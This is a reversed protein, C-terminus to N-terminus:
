CIGEGGWPDNSALLLATASDTSLDFSAEFTAQDPRTPSVISAGTVDTLTVQSADVCFYASIVGKGDAAGPEYSQLVSKEITSQGGIMLERDAFSQFGEREIAAIQPTAVQDIREPSDGNEAMIQNATSIYREYTLRAAALAEDEDAFPADSTSAPAPKPQPDDPTCGCVVAVLAVVAALHVASRPRMITRMERRYFL